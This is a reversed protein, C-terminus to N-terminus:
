SEFRRHWRIGGVKTITLVEVFGGCTAQTDSMAATLEQMRVMLEGMQAASAEGMAGFIRLFNNTRDDMWDNIIHALGDRFDAIEEDKAKFVKTAGDVAINVVDQAFYRSVGHIEAQMISDQAPFTVRTSVGNIAPDDDVLSHIMKPGDDTEICAIVKATAIAPVVQSSGFGSATLLTDDRGSYSLLLTAAELEHLKQAQEDTMTLSIGVDNGLHEVATPGKLGAISKIVDAVDPGKLTKDVPTKKVVEEFLHLFDDVDGRTPAQGPKKTLPALIVNGSADDLCQILGCIANQTLRGKPLGAQACLAPYGTPALLRDLVEKPSKEEGASNLLDIATKFSFDCLGSGGATMVVTKGSGIAIKSAEVTSNTGDSNLFSGEIESTNVVLGTSRGTLQSTV